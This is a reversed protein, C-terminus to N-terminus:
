CSRREFAAKTTYSGRPLYAGMVRAEDGPVRTDQVAQHLAGPSFSWVTGDAIALADNLRCRRFALTVSITSIGFRPCASVISLPQRSTASM